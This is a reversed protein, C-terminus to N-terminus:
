YMSQYGFAQQTSIGTEDTNPAAPDPHLETMASEISSDVPMYQENPANAGPQIVPLIPEPAYKSALYQNLDAIEDIRAQHHQRQAQHFDLRAKLLATIEDFMSTENTALTATNM